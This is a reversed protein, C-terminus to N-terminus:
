EQAPRDVYTLSCQAPGFMQVLLKTGRRAASLSGIHPRGGDYCVTWGTNRQAGDIELTVVRGSPLRQLVRVGGGSLLQLVEDSAVGDESVNVHFRDFRSYDEDGQVTWLQPYGYGENSVITELCGGDVVNPERGAERVAQVLGQRDLFFHETVRQREAADLRPRDLLRSIDQPVGSLDLRRVSTGLSNLHANIEEIDLLDPRGDGLELRLAVKEM